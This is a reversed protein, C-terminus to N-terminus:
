HFRHIVAVARLKVENLSQAYDNEDRLGRRRMRM